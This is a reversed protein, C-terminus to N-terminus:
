GLSRRSQPRRASTARDASLRDRRGAAQAHRAFGVAATGHRASGVRGVAPPLLPQRRIAPDSAQAASRGMPEQQKALYRTRGRAPRRGGDFAGHRPRAPPRRSRGVVLWRGGYRHIAATRDAELRRRLHQHHFPREPRSIRPRTRRHVHLRGLAAEAHDQGAPRLPRVLFPIKNPKYPKKKPGYLHIRCPIPKGTDKDVVTLELQGNAAPLPRDMLPVMFMALAALWFAYGKNGREAHSRVSPSTRRREIRRLADSLAPEWASRPFWYGFFRAFQRMSFLRLSVAEPPIAHCREGGKSCSIRKM